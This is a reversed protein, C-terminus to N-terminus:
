LKAVFPHKENPHPRALMGNDEKIMDSAKEAIMLVPAATNGSTVKPMISADVVRLNLLGKVRLRPDVVTTPDYVAGMKATGVPHYITVSAKQAYLRLYEESEPPYPSNEDVLERVVIDSFPPTKIIKRAIKLGEVICQIDEEASLYNPEIIPHETPDDSALRISGVSKPQLLIPLITAGTGISALFEPSVQSGEGEPTAGTMGILEDNVLGPLFHIQLDNAKNDPYIGTRKFATTEVGATTAMGRKFLAHQALMKIKEVASFTNLTTGPKTQVLLMCMLHDQLNKGVPLDAVIPINHKKLEEKPGVGSLMLLWPSNVAGACLIVERRARVSLEISSKLEELLHSGIRVCVGIATSGQFMVRTVYVSTCVHLNPRALVKPTLFANSTNQRLGDKAYQEILSVGTQSPGNYDPNLPLGVNAAASATVFARSAEAPEGRTTPSVTIEGGIGRYRHDVNDWICNEGRKFYPLVEAYSWGECGSRSWHDFNEPDGRVCLMANISSSGGLMKGRPWNSIRHNMKPQSTTKFCWDYTKDLQLFPIAAPTNVRFHDESLGTELLLVSVNPDESLRNALVCGATGAGVIVFDYEPLIGGGGDDIPFGRSTSHPVPQPKADRASAAM